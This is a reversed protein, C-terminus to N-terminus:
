SPWGLVAVATSLYALCFALGALLLTDKLRPNM